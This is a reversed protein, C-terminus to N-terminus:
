DCTEHMARASVCMCVCVRAFQLLNRFPIAINEDEAKTTARRATEQQQWQLNYNFITILYREM